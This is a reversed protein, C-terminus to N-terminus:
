LGYLLIDPLKFFCCSWNKTLFVPIVELFSVFFCSTQSRLNIPEKPKHHWFGLFDSNTNKLRDNTSPRFTKLCIFGWIPVKVAYFVENGGSSSPSQLVKYRRCWNEKINHKNFTVGCTYVSFFAVYSHNWDKRKLNIQCKDYFIDSSLCIASFM